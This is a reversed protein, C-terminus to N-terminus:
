FFKVASDAGPSSPGSLHSFKASSASGVDLLRRRGCSFITFMRVKRLLDSKPNGSKGPNESKILKLMLAHARTPADGKMM